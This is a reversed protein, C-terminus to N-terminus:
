VEKEDVCLGKYEKMAELLKETGEIKLNNMKMEEDTTFGFLTINSTELNITAIGKNGYSILYTKNQNELPTDGIEFGKDKLYSAFLSDEHIWSSIEFLTKAFKERFRWDFYKNLGVYNTSFVYRNFKSIAGIIVEHGFFSSVIQWYYKEEILFFHHGELKEELTKVLLYEKRKLKNKELM